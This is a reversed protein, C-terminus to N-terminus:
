AASFDYSDTSLSFCTMVKLSCISVRILWTMSYKSIKMDRMFILRRPAFKKFQSKRSTM